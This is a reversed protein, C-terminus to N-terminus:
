RAGSPPEAGRATVLVYTPARDGQRPFALPGTIGQLAPHGRGLQALWDRIADRDPGAERLAQAVLLVADYALATQDPLDGHRLRRYEARVRQLATDPRAIDVLRVYRVGVLLGSSDNEAAIGGFGDSALVDLGPLASRLREAIRRFEDTRGLWMLTGPRARALSGILEAAGNATDDEVYAGEYVPRIHREALTATLMSHLARGYDDNVYVVGIRAREADRVQDALFRAQHEDSAVLRFSYPGAQSFLPATTTPAIQVLHRQNYVQSAALSAASNAHGVVALVRPDLSLSEAVQLAVQASANYAHSFNRAELRNGRIGGTANVHELAMRAGQEGEAGLVVGVAYPSKDRCAAALALAVIVARARPGSGRRQVSGIM